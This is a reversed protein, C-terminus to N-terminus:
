ISRQFLGKRCCEARKTRLVNDKELHILICSILKFSKMCRYLVSPDLYGDPFVMSSQVGGNPMHGSHSLAMSIAIVAPLSMSVTICGSISKGMDV